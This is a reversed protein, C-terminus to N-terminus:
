PEGLADGNRRGSLGAEGEGSRCDVGFGDGVLIAVVAVVGELNPRLEVGAASSLAQVGRPRAGTWLSVSGEGVRPAFLLGPNPPM